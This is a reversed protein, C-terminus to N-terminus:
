RIFLVKLFSLTKFINIFIFIIFIFFTFFPALLLLLPFLLPWGGLSYFNFTLRLRINRFIGWLSTHYTDNTNRLSLLFYLNISTFILWSTWSSFSLVEVSNTFLCLVRKIHYSALTKILLTSKALLLYTSIGKIRIIWRINSINLILM